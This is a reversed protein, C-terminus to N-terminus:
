SAAFFLSVRLFVLPVFYYSLNTRKTGAIKKRDFLGREGPAKKQKWERSLILIVTVEATTDRAYTDNKKMAVCM